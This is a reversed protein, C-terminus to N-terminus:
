SRLNPRTLYSTWTSILSRTRYAHNESPKQLARGLFTILQLPTSRTRQPPKRHCRLKRSRQQALIPGSVSRRLKSSAASLIRTYYDLLTKLKSIFVVSVIGDVHKKLVPDHVLTNLWDAILLRLERNPMFDVTFFTLLWYRIAVFTRVRVIRRVTEDQRSSPKQLAWHFRSILLHCLDVGSIYTRYTLFFNLLEDYNLDSTLQAIWREITAALLVKQGLVPLQSTSAEPSRLRSVKSSRRRSISSLSPNSTSNETLSDRSASSFDEMDRDPLTEGWLVFRPDDRPAASQDAALSLRFVTTDESEPVLKEFLPLGRYTQLVNFVETSYHSSLRLSEASPTFEEHEPVPDVTSGETSLMLSSLRIASPPRSMEYDSESTDSLILSDNDPFDIRPDEQRATLGSEFSQMERLHRPTPLRNVPLKQPINFTVGHGFPQTITARPKDTETTVKGPNFLSHTSFNSSASSSPTFWEMLEGFFDIRRERAVTDFTVRQRPIDMATVSQSHGRGTVSFTPATTVVVDTGFMDPISRTKRLKKSTSPASSSATPPRSTLAVNSKTFMAPPLFHMSLRSRRKTQPSSTESPTKSHTIRDEVDAAAAAPASVEDRHSSLSNILHRLFKLVRRM